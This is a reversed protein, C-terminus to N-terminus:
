FEITRFNCAAREIKLCSFKESMGQVAPQNLNQDFILFTFFNNKHLPSHPLGIRQPGQSFRYPLYGFRSLMATETNTTIKTSMSLCQSWCAQRSHVKCWVSESYSAMMSKLPVSSASKWRVPSTVRYWGKYSKGCSSWTRTWRWPSSPRRRGTWTTRWGRSSPWWWRSQWVSWWCCAKLPPWWEQM